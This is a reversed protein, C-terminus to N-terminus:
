RSVEEPKTSTKRTIAKAKRLEGLIEEMKKSMGNTMNEKLARMISAKSAKVEIAQNAIESGLIRELIPLAADGDVLERSSEVMTLWQGEGLDIPEQCAMSIIAAEMGEILRRM